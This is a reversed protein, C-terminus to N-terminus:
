HLKFTVPLVYRVRVPIGYLKGPIWRPMSRIVRLAEQDLSPYLTRLIEANEITGDKNVVFQVIVRGQIGKAQADAPYHTNTSLYKLCQGMGGPFEPMKDVLEKPEEENAAMEEEMTEAEPREEEDASFLEKMEDESLLSERMMKETTTDKSAETTDHDEKNSITWELAVFFIALAVVFGILLGIPRKAELDVKPAKKIEM